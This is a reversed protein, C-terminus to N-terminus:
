KEMKFQTDRFKCTWVMICIQHFIIFTTYLRSSRALTCGGVIYSDTDLDKFATQSSSLHNTAGTDLVWDEADKEEETGLHALVKEERLLVRVVLDLSM